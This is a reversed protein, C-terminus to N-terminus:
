RSWTSSPTRSARASRSVSGSIVAEAVTGLLVRESDKSSLEAVRERRKATGISYWAGLNFLPQRLDLGAGFNTAPDPITANQQVGASGFNLGTGLLLHRTVNASGTLTPLAAALARRAQGQAQMVQAESIRLRSSQSRVLTLAQRWTTLSHPPEPLEALQPDSVDPMTPLVDDGSAAAPAPATPPTPAPAAQALAHTTTLVPLLLSGALSLRRHM